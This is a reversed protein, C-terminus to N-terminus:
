RKYTRAEAAIKAPDFDNITGILEHTILDKVDANRPRAIM